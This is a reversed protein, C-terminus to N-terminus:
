GEKRRLRRVLQGIGAAVISDEVFGYGCHPCCLIRCNKAMPCGGACRSRDASVEGGCLPCKHARSTQRAAM